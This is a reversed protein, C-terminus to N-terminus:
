NKLYIYDLGNVISGKPVHGANDVAKLEISLNNSFQNMLLETFGPLSKTVLPMEGKLGYNLYLFKNNLKDKPSFQNVKEAMFDDCYGITASSSIYGAFADPESLLAYITFLGANSAGFLINKGNTSYNHNIFVQLEEVIFQLFKDARGSGKRNSIEVPIMDRNRNGNNAIGVIIHPISHIATIADQYPHVM